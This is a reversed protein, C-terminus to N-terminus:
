SAPAAENSVPMKCWANVGVKSVFSLVIAVVPALAAAPLGVAGGLATAIMAVVESKHQEILGSIDKRTKDYAPDGGCILKRSEDMVREYCARPWSAGSFNVLDDPGAKALWNLAAGDPSEGAALMQRISDAQHPDLADIWDDLEGDFKIQTM